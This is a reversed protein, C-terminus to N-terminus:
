GGGSVKVTEKRELMIGDTFFGKTEKSDLQEFETVGENYSGNEKFVRYKVTTNGVANRGWNEIFVSYVYTRTNTKTDGSKSNNSGTMKKWAEIKIRFTENEEAWNRVFVRDKEALMSIPFQVVRNNSSLKVTVNSDSVSQLEANITKGESSTLTHYETRASISLLGSVAAVLTLVTLKKSAIM